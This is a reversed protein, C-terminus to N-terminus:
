DYESVVNDDACSLCKRLDLPIIKRQESCPSAKPYRARCCTGGILGFVKRKMDEADLDYSVLRERRWGNM